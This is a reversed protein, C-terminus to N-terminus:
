RFCAPRLLTSVVRVLNHLALNSCYVDTSLKLDLLSSLIIKLIICSDCKDRLIRIKLLRINNNTANFSLEFYTQARRKQM